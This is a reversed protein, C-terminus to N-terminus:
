NARALLREREIGDLATWLAKAAHEAVALAAEAAEPDKALQANM